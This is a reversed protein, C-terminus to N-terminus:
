CLPNWLATGSRHFVPPGACCAFDQQDTKKVVLSEDIPLKQAALSDIAVIEDLHQVPHPQCDRGLPGSNEPIKMQMHVVGRGVRCSEGLQEDAGHVDTM